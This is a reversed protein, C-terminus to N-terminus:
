RLLIVFLFTDSGCKMPLIVMLTGNGNDALKLRSGGQIFLIKM